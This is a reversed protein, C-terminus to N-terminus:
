EKKGEFKYGQQRVTVICDSFGSPELKKRLTSVRQKVADTAMASEDSYIREVIMEASFIHNPNSMLLKLLQFEGPQLNVQAGNATVTCTDANLSLDGIRYVTEDGPVRRLLAGVRAILEDYSFPKCLYDDAGLDFATVKSIVDTQGTLFLIPINGGNERFKKCVDIGEMGPVKWDVVALDYHYHLLRDLGEPGTTVVEVIHNCSLLATEIINLFYTEDELVLIRAMM